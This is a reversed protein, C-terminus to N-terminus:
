LQHVQIGFVFSSINGQSFSMVLTGLSLVNSMTELILFYCRACRFFAQQNLSHPVRASLVGMYKFDLRKKRERLM